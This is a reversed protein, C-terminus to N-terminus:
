DGSPPFHDEFIQETRAAMIFDNEHLGDVAHTWWSVVARGWTILIAPHHNDEDAKKGVLNAFELAGKFDGFQFSKELRPLGEREVVEWDTLSPLLDAVENVTLPKEDKQYSKIKRNALDSM